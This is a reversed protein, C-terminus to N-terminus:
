ITQTKVQDPVAKKRRRWALVGTSGAALMTLLISSPEPVAASVGQGAAIPDGAMADYAWDIATLRDPGYTVVGNARELRLRIWGFHAGDALDFQVGAFGTTPYPWTGALLTGFFTDQVRLARGGGGFGSAAGASIVAGSNLRRLQASANLLMAGSGLGNNLGTLNAVGVSNGFDNQLFLRFEPLGALDMNIPATAVQNITTLNIQVNQIGSYIIPDAGIATALALGSGAAAAYVPWSQLREKWNPSSLDATVTADYAALQGQLETQPQSVVQTTM